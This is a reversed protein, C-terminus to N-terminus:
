CAFVSLYLPIDSVPRLPPRADGNALISALEEAARAETATEYRVETLTIGYGPSTNTSPELERVRVQIGDICANLTRQLTCM